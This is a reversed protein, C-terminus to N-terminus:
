NKFTKKSDEKELENIKKEVKEIDELRKKDTRFNNLLNRLHNEEDSSAKRLRIELGEKIDTIERLLQGYEVKNSKKLKKTLSKIEQNVRAYDNQLLKKEPSTVERILKQIRQTEVREEMILSNRVQKMTSLQFRKPVELSTIEYSLSQKNAELKDVEEM